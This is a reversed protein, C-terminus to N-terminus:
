AHTYTHRKARTIQSKLKFYHSSDVLFADIEQQAWIRIRIHTDSRFHTCFLSFSGSYFLFHVCKIHHSVATTALSCWSYCARASLSCPRSTSWEGCLGCERASDMSAGTQEACLFVCICICVNYNLGKCMEKKKQQATNIKIIAMSQVIASVSQIHHSLIFSRIVPIRVDKQMATVCIPRMFVICMQVICSVNPLEDMACNERERVEHTWENQSACLSLSNRVRWLM